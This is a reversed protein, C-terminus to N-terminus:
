RCASVTFCKLAVYEICFFTCLLVLPFSEFSYRGLSYTTLATVAYISTLYLFLLLNKYFLFNLEKRKSFIQFICTLIFWVPLIMVSFFYFLNLFFFNFMGVFTKEARRQLLHIFNKALRTNSFESKEMMEIDDQVNSGINNWMANRFISFYNSFCAFYCRMVKCSYLVPHFFVSKICYYRFFDNLYSEGYTNNMYSIVTKFTDNHHMVSDFGDINMNKYKWSVTSYFNHFMTLVNEPYKSKEKQLDATLELDIINYISVFLTKYAFQSTKVKDDIILKSVVSTFLLNMIICLFLVCFLLSKRNNRWMIITVTLMLLPAFFLFKNQYNFLFFLFFLVPIFYLIIPKKYIIYVMYLAFIQLCQTSGEPRLCNEMGIRHTSFLYLILLLFGSLLFISRKEKYLEPFFIENWGIFLRYLLFASIIGVISQFIFTGAFSKLVLSSFLIQMPYLLGRPAFVKIENTQNFFLATNHFGDAISGGAFGYTCRVIAYISFIGALIPIEKTELFSKLRSPEYRFFLVVNIAFLFSVAFEMSTSLLILTKRPDEGPLIEILFGTLLTYCLVHVIIIIAIFVFSISFFLKGLKEKNGRNRM